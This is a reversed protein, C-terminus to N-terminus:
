SLLLNQYRHLLLTLYYCNSVLTVFSAARIIPLLKEMKESQLLAPSHVASSADRSVQLVSVFAQQLLAM